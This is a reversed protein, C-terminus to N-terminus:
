CTCPADGCYPCVSPFKQWVIQSLDLGVRLAIAVTWSFVDAIEGKLADHTFDSARETMKRLDDSVEGIEELAHFGSYEVPFLRNIRGYLEAYRRTWGDLTTIMKGTKRYHDLEKDILQKPKRMNYPTVTCTCHYKELCYPCVGPYKHWVDEQLRHDVSDCFSCLWALIDPLEWELVKQASKRKKLDDVTLKMQSMSINDERLAEALESAEEVVRLLISEKSRKRNKEGYIKGFMEQWEELTQPIEPRHIMQFEKKNVTTTNIFPHM